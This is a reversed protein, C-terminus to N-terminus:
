IEWFLKRNEPARLNSSSALDIVEIKVLADDTGIRPFNELSRSIRRTRVESRSGEECWAALKMNLSFKTWRVGWSM